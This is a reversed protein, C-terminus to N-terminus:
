GSSVFSIRVTFPFFYVTVRGWSSDSSTKGQKEKNKFILQSLVRDVIAGLGELLRELGGAPVKALRKEKGVNITLVDDHLDKAVVALCVLELILSGHYV